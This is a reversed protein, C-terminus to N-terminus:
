LSKRKSGRNRKELKSIEDWNKKNKDKVEKNKKKLSVIKEKNSEFIKAFKEFDINRIGNEVSLSEKIFDQHLKDFYFKAQNYSKDINLDKKFIDNEELWKKTEGVPKLEFRLTKQLSYKKTFVSWISQTQNNKNEM